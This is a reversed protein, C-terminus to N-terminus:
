QLQLLPRSIPPQFVFGMDRYIALAATMIPSTHLALVRSGDHRARRCCEDLLACGVGKGRSATDVVLLLM